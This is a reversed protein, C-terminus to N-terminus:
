AALWYCLQPWKLGFITCGSRGQSRLTILLIARQLPAPSRSLAGRDGPQFLLTDARCSGQGMRSGGVRSRRPITEGGGKLSRAAPLKNDGGGRWREQYRLEQQWKGLHGQGAQQVEM